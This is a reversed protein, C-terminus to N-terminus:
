VVDNEHTEVELTFSQELDNSSRRKWLTRAVMFCIAVAVAFARAAIGAVLGRPM